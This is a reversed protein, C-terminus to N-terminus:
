QQNVVEECAKSRMEGGELINTLPEDLTTTIQASAVPINPEIEPLGPFKRETINCHLADIPNDFEVQPNQIPQCSSRERQRQPVECNSCPLFESKCENGERYRCRAVGLWRGDLCVRVGRERWNQFCPMESHLVFQSLCNIEYDCRSVVTAWDEKEIYSDGDKCVAEPPPPQISTSPDYCRKLVVPFGEIDLEPQQSCCMGESTLAYGDRCAEEARVASIGMFAGFGLIGLISARFYHSVKKM